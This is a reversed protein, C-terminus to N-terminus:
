NQTIFRGTEQDYYRGELYYFGVDFDYQEGIFLYKNITTGTRNLEIGFADFVHTDTLLESTDILQRTSGIGDYIYFSLKNNRKQSILGNGYVYRVMLTGSGDREELVQTNYSNKDVMYKTVVGNVTSSM